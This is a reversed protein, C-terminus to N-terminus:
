ANMQGIGLRNWAHLLVHHSMSIELQSPFIRSASHMRLKISIPGWGDLFVNEAIIIPSHPFQLQPGSCRM